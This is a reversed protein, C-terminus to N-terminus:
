WEPSPEGGDTSPSREKRPSKPLQNQPRSSSSAPNLAFRPNVALPSAQPLDTHIPEYLERPPSRHLVKDSPPVTVAKLNRELLARHAADSMQAENEIAGFPITLVNPHNTHGRVFCAFQAHTPTKTRQRLWDQECRLDRAAYALDVGEPSSAYKISTNTSVATRLSDSFPKGHMDQVAITIGLNYERALRLMEPTKLEDAFHQFEDIILYAPNWEKRPIAFREFAANLTLSIIYRGFLSSSESGLLSMQTDVLVIKKQQLAQFMDFKRVPTSFMQVFEPRHMISYLRNKISNRTERFNSEYFDRQFFRRGIDDLRDIYPKFRSQEYSRAPDDILDFFDSITAGNVGFMLKACFLFPVSMKQTLSADLTSFIYAFNSIVQQEIQQKTQESYMRNWRWAAHFMNLAPTDTPRLIVIRDKLEKEFIALHSLREIMLGKPDIIVMAPPYKRSLDDLILRQLLTTKGSGAPGLIHTHEFRTQEPLAMPQEIWDFRPQEALLREYALRSKLLAEETREHIKRIDEEHQEDHRQMVEAHYRRRYVKLAESEIDLRKNTWEGWDGMTEHDHKADFRYGSPLYPRVAREYCHQSCIGMGRTWRKDDFFLGNCVECRGPNFYM